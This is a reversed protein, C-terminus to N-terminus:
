SNVTSSSIFNLIRYINYVKVLNLDFVHFGTRFQFNCAFYALLLIIAVISKERNSTKSQDKEDARVHQGKCSHLSSKTSETEQM